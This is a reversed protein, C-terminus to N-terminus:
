DLTLIERVLSIVQQAQIPKTIYANAGLALARQRDEAAGETTIIVIPVDKYNEDARLRKVLKLGDLIPMNIDTIIIDFKTGAIRRLADVGDDAEVVDLERVRSLAFVIMKRMPPSDEVVLANFRREGSISM